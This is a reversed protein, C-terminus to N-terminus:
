TREVLTNIVTTAGYGIVKLDPYFAQLSLDVKKLTDEISHFYGVSVDEPTTPAKGVVFDGAENVIFTDTFTGGTDTYCLQPRWPQDM